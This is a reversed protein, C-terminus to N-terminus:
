GNNNRQRLEKKTSHPVDLARHQTAALLLEAGKSM